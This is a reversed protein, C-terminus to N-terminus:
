KVPVPQMARSSTAARIAAGFMEALHEHGLVKKMPRGRGFRRLTNGALQESLESWAADDRGNASAGSPRAFEPGILSIPGGGVSDASLLPWLEELRKRSGWVDSGAAVADLWPGLLLSSAQNKRLGLAMSLENALFWLSSPAAGRGRLSWGAHSEASLLAADVRATGTLRFGCDRGRALNAGAAALLARGQADAYGLGSEQEVLSTLLRVVPELLGEATLWPPSDLFEPDYAVASTSLGALLVLNKSRTPTSGVPSRDHHEFCAASTVESGTGFTTPVACHNIQRGIPRPLVVVGSRSGNRNLVTEVLPDAAISVALKTFDMTNGGGVSLVREVGAQRLRRALDAASGVNAPTDVVELWLFNGHQLQEARHAVAPDVVM